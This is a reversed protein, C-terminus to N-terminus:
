DSISGYLYCGMSSKWNHLGSINFSYDLILLAVETGYGKGRSDKEGIVINFEANRNKYDVDSLYTNGILGLTEKEYITLFIYDRSKAIQEFVSVEEEM